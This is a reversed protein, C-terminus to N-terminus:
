KWNKIFKIVSAADSYSYKELITPGQMLFITPTARAATKLVTADCKLIPIATMKEKASKVDATVIIVLLKNIKAVSLIDEVRNKWNNYDDFDKVLILAYKPSQFLAATTDVDSLTRVSFDTIAAKLGNGPKVLEDKRDVYLYSSDFDNPFHEQDFSIEKGNKKYIFHLSFSDAIAGKPTQMQQFINNGTKYPLCDMLPLHKLVYVQFFVSGLLGITLLSIAFLNSINSVMKKQFYFLILILCLLSLDKIFSQAASLPICDGFCGCTKIKGSLLAYGTLFTFAIILLLLLWNVIRMQWGIIVAIGAVIEFINLIIALSLTYDHLGHWGWVEFFEQIKYSLGLPDNAKILGSFIFLIGVCWRVIVLIKKM